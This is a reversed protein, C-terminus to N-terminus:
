PREHEKKRIIQIREKGKEVKSITKQKRLYVKNELFIKPECYFQAFPLFTEWISGTIALAVNEGDEVVVM